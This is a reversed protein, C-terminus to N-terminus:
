SLSSEDSTLGTCKNLVELGTEMRSLLLEQKASFGLPTLGFVTMGAFRARVLRERERGEFKLLSWMSGRIQAADSLKCGKTAESDSGPCRRVPM